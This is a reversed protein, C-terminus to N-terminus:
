KCVYQKDICKEMPVKIVTSDHVWGHKKCTFKNDKSEEITALLLFDGVVGVVKFPMNDLKKTILGDINPQSLAYITESKAKPNVVCDGITKSQTNLSLSFLMVAILNFSKFM